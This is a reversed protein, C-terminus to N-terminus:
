DKKQQFRKWGEQSLQDVLARLEKDNKVWRRIRAEWDRPIAKMRTQGKRTQGLYFSVHKKGQTACRCKPNGCCRSMRIISGHVLSDYERLLQHIRSRLEREKKSWGSHHRM